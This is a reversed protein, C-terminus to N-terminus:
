DGLVTIVWNCKSPQAKGPVGALMEKKEFQKIVINNNIKFYTMMLVVALSYKRAMLQAMGKSM